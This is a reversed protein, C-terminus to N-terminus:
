SFCRLIIFYFCFFPFVYVFFFTSFYICIFSIKFPALNNMICIARNINRSRRVCLFSCYLYFCLFLFTGNRKGTPINFFVCSGYSFISIYQNLGKDITITVSKKDFQQHKTDYLSSHVKMVDINRAIYYTKVNIVIGRSDPISVERYKQKPYGNGNSLARHLM